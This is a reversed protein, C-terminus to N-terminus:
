APVGVRQGFFAHCTRNKPSYLGPMENLCTRSAREQSGKGQASEPVIGIIKRASLLAPITLTIAHTPVLDLSPFHGEGVQQQRSLDDLKVVKVWEPDRFNAAPPDNFALHGNEGIGLCCLDAPFQRLLHDYRRCELESDEAEGGIGYFAAPKVYDVIKERLFRRFSAPHIAPM